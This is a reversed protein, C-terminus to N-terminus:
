IFGRNRCEWFCKALARVDEMSNHAPFSEGNFLKAYLEELRPFKGPKGDRFRAGVFNIITPETMTDYLPLSKLFAWFKSAREVNSMRVYEAVIVRIDFAAGNHACLATSAKVDAFFQMFADHYPVGEAIARDTTIGHVAAAADPITFGDPKIIFDGEKDGLKWSLQVVHPFDNTYVLPEEKGRPIVGTTETDFCIEKYGQLQAVLAQLDALETILRYEHPTTHVTAMEGEEAPLEVEASPEAVPAPTPDPMMMAFLDGQGALAERKKAASKAQSMEALQRQPAQQPADSEVIPAVNHLDRLFSTFDLEQYLAKLENINPPCIELDKPSFEVPVDTCITTLTKSLLLKDGWAAIKEGQKGKINQVNALINEVAGWEGVLKCAGKEGIGPVGPINDSADGWVALIDRVLLPDSIGYKSCIAESDVIEVDDGRQKYIKRREGVLQGYDKDPTIMYTDINGMEGAKKALTGIVDDAEYGALEATKINMSRLVDKLVPVQEHLEDPMGKRTGKYAEYMEHRFTPAHVDFAVTLYEPKEEELIKFMINLFGIVANTHIGEGNTLDPLGYFARNLISHGDILVIKESM